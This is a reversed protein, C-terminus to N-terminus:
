VVIPELNELVLNDLDLPDDEGWGGAEPATKAPTLITSNVIM